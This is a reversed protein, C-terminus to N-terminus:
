IKKLGKPKVILYFKQHSTNDIVNLIEPKYGYRENIKMQLRKAKDLQNSEFRHETIGPIALFSM